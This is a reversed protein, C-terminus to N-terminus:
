STGSSGSSGAPTATSKFINGTTNDIAVFYSSVGSLLNTLRLKSGTVPGIINVSGTILVSGTMGPTLIQPSDIKM